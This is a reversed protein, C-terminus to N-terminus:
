GFGNEGRPNVITGQVQGRYIHVQGQMQVHFVNGVRVLIALFVNWNAIKGVYNPLSDMMWKVNIGVAEGEIDLSTDETIVYEGLQSAKHISVSLPDSM